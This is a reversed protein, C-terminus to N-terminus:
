DAQADHWEKIKKCFLGMFVDEILPENMGDPFFSYFDNGDADWTGLYEGDSTVVSGDDILNVPFRYPRDLWQDLASCGAEYAAQKLMEVGTGVDNGYAKASWNYSSIRDGHVTHVVEEVVIPCARYSFHNKM